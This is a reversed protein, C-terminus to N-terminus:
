EYLFNILDDPTIINNDKFFAQAAKLKKEEEELIKSEMTWHHLKIAGGTIIYLNPALRIAYFRLKVKSLIKSKVSAKALQLPKITFECEKKNDYAKFLITLNDDGEEFGKKAYDLLLREFEIAENQISKIAEEVTEEEYYGSFLDEQHVICYRLLYEPDSWLDLLRNFEDVEGYQMSYLGGDTEQNEVTFISIIKM